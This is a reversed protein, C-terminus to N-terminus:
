DTIRRVAKLTEPSGIDIWRGAFRQGSVRGAAIASFYLDRLSFAGDPSREFLAPRLVAIGCYVLPKHAERTVGHETLDFDGEDRNAPTATLVLHALNHGPPSQPLAKFDFDTWIDGNLIVFPADGLLPLAKRIGGGTELREAEHSYSIRVGEDRGNGLAREIQEGLHHLNIVIDKIGARALWRLQHVILAEGAIPLLPKPIRDTLPSLREGRGAALIMARM